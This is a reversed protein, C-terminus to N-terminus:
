IALQRTLYNVAMQSQLQSPEGDPSVAVAAAAVVAFAVAVAAVYAFFIAEIYCTECWRPEPAHGLGLQAAGESEFVSRIKAQGEKFMAAVRVHDGSRIESAFRSFFTPDAIAISAAIRDYDIARTADKLSASVAAGSEGSLINAARELEAASNEQVGAERLEAAGNRLSTADITKVYDAFTKGKWLGDLHRGVEGVGFYVGKFLTEGTQAQVDFSPSAETSGTHPPEAGCGLQASAFALMVLGGTVVRFKRKDIKMINEGIDCFQATAFWDVLLVFRSTSSSGRERLTVRRMSLSKTM